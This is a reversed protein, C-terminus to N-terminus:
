LSFQDDERTELLGMASTARLLRYLFDANVHLRQALTEASASGDKLEEPIGLKTLTYVAQSVWYGTIYQMMMGFPHCQSPSPSLQAQMM